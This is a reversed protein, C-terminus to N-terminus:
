KTFKPVFEFDELPDTMEGQIMRSSWTLIYELVYGLTKKRTRATIKEFIEEALEEGPHETNIVALVSTITTFALQAAMQMAEQEENM